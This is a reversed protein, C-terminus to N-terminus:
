VQSICKDSFEKFQSTLFLNNKLMVSLYQQIKSYPKPSFHYNMETILSM